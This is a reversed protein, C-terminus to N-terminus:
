STEDTNAGKNPYMAQIAEIAYQIAPELNIGTACHMQVMDDRLSLFIMEDIDKDGSMPVKLRIAAYERISMGSISADIPKCTM